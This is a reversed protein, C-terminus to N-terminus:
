TATGELLNRPLLTGQALEERIRATKYVRYCVDCCFVRLRGSYDVWTVPNARIRCECADCHTYM